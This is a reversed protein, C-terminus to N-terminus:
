EVDITSEGANSIQITGTWACTLTSNDSLAKIEQITVISAGPTWPSPLVPICPQPTLTGMAAATAAAVQPNAPCQCMGFPAVNVMPLFDNVTAANEQDGSSGLTPLITLTSPSTGQSCTMSAGNVVLKPM